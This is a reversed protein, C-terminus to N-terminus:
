KYGDHVQYNGGSLPNASFALGGSGYISDGKKGSEGNDTIVITVVKVNGDKDTFKGTFTAINYSAPPSTTPTGSFVLSTFANHCKYQNKNLHDVINFNGVITGDPLFGVNGSITWAPM